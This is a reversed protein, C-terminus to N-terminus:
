VQDNIIIHSSIGSLSSTVIDDFAFQPQPPMNPTTTSTPTTITTTTVTPTTATLVPVAPEPQPTMTKGSLQPMIDALRSEDKM